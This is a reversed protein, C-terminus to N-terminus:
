KGLTNSDLLFIFFTSFIKCHLGEVRDNIMKVSEHVLSIHVIIFLAQVFFSVVTADDKGKRKEGWVNWCCIDIDFTKFNIQNDRICKKTPQQAKKTPKKLKICTQKMCQRVLTMIIYNWGRISNEDM